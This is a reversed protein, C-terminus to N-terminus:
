NKYNEPTTEEKMLDQEPVFSSYPKFELKIGGSCGTLLVPLLLLSLYKKNMNYIRYIVYNFTFFPM